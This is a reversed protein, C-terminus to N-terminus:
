KDVSGNTLIVDNTFGTCLGKLTVHQDVVLKNYNASDSPLMTFQIGFMPDDTSLYIVTEGKQNKDLQAITGEVAVVKNQYTANAKQEDENFAAFLANASIKIEAKVNSYDKKPKNYMYYAIAGGAAGIIILAILIKKM